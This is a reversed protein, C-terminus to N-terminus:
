VSTGMAASDVMREHFTVFQNVTIRMAAIPKASMPKPTLSYWDFVCDEFEHPPTKHFNYIPTEQFVREIPESDNKHQENSAKCPM